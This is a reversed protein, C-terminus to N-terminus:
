ASFTLLHKIVEDVCEEEDKVQCKSFSWFTLCKKCNQPHDKDLLPTNGRLFILVVESKEKIQNLKSFHKVLTKCDMDGKPIVLAVQKGGDSPAKSSTGPIKSAEVIRAKLKPIIISKKSIKRSYSTTPNSEVQANPTDLDDAFPIDEAYQLKRACLIKNILSTTEEAVIDLDPIGGVVSISYDQTSQM